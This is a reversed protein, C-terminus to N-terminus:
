TVTVKDKFSYSGGDQEVDVVAGIWEADRLPSRRLLIATCRQSFFSELVPPRM